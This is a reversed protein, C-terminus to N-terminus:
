DALKGVSALYVTIEKEGDIGILEDVEDDYCAGIACCGLGLSTASLYLNACVHASDKYIYRYGREGYKWKTRHVVATWIFVAGAEGLFNQNLAAESIKKRFDGEKIMELSHNLVNYHYVGRELGEVNNIVLYTDVPYLAGASPATRFHYGDLDASIGQTCWLLQSVEGLSMPTLSYDRYSRRESITQFLPKGGRRDPEPLPIIKLPNDYIKYVSPPNKWDWFHNHRRGRVHKTSKHYDDGIKM